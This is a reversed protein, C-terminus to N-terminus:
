TAFLHAYRAQTAAVDHLVSHSDLSVGLPLISRHIIHLTAFFCTESLGLRTTSRTHTYITNTSRKLRHRIGRSNTSDSNFKKNQGASPTTHTYLTYYAVLVICTIFLSVHVHDPYKQFLILHNNSSQWSERSDRWKVQKSAVGKDSDNWMEAEDARSLGMNHLPCRM